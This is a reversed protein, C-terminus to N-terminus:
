GGTVPPFFALEADTTLLTDLCIYDQNVAVLINSPIKCDPNVRKWVQAASIDADCVLRDEAKGLTDRLSAFYLIQIKM